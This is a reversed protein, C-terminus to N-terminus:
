NARPTSVRNGPIFLRHGGAMMSWRCWIFGGDGLVCNGGSFTLVVLMLQPLLSIIGPDSGSGLCSCKSEVFFLEVIKKM